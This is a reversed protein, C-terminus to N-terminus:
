EAMLVIGRSVGPADDRRRMFRVPLEALARRESHTLPRNLAELRHGPGPSAPCVLRLKRPRDGHREWLVRRARVADALRDRNSRM